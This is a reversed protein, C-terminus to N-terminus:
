KVAKRNNFFYVFGGIAIFIGIASIFITRDKVKYSINYGYDSYHEKNKEFSIYPNYGMAGKIMAEIESQHQPDLKITEQIQADTNNVYVSLLIFSLLLKIKSM